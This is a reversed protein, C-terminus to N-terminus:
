IRPVRYYPSGSGLGAPAILKGTPFTYLSSPCCRVVPLVDPCPSPITWVGFGAALCCPRRFGYVPVFIRQAALGTPTRTGGGAGARGQGASRLRFAQPDGHDRKPTPSPVMGRLASVRRPAPYLPVGAGAGSGMGSKFPQAGMAVLNFSGGQHGGIWFAGRVLNSALIDKRGRSDPSFVCVVARQRYRDPFHIHLVRSGAFLDLRLRFALPQRPRGQAM